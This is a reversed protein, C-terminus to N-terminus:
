PLFSLSISGLMLVLSKGLSHRLRPKYNDRQVNFFVYLVELSTSSM